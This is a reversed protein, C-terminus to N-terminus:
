GKKKFFAGIILSGVLGTVVTGIVGSIANMLPTAV